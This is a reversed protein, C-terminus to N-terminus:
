CGCALATDLIRRPRASLVVEALADVDARPRGRYGDLLAFGRMEHLLDDADRDTLPAIGFRVDGLVEVHVGGLGVGVLPGFFPDEVLGVITATGEVIMPQILVGDVQDIM